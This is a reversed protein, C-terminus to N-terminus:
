QNRSRWREILAETVDQEYCLPSAGGPRSYASRQGCRSGNSARNYPCPCNGSYSRISQQILLEAVQSDSLTAAGSDAYEEAYSFASFMLVFATFFLTTTYRRTM